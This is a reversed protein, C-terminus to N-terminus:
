ESENIRKIEILGKEICLEVETEDNIKSMKYAIEPLILKSGRTSLNTIICMRTQNTADLDSMVDKSDRTVNATLMTKTQEALYKAILDPVNLKTANTIGQLGPSLNVEIVLPGKIESDLIDVGCIEAGVAKAAKVAIRKVDENPIIQEGSGGAHINSRKDDKKGHRKMAAVVKDGVVIVRIDTSGTEVYEQILFPQRLTTLTDLMSAAAEYSDVFMVGKGQTGSPIKLIVPYNIRELIKKGSEPSSAIYTVPTPIKNHQLKLHTLIKDHGNTYADPNYPTYTQKGSSKVVDTLARLIMAYKYSGKAYICDYHGLEEGNYMVVPKNSIDVEINRIDIEDVHDFHKRLAECTM